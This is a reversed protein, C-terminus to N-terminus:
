HKVIVDIETNYIPNPISVFRVWPLIDNMQSLLTEVGLKANKSNKTYFCVTTSAGKVPITDYLMKCFEGSALLQTAKASM